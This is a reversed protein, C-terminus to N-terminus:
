ILDCAEAPMWHAPKGDWKINCGIPNTIPVTINVQDSGTEGDNDTVTLKFSFKTTMTVQPIAFSAIMSNSNSISISPGSIQTWLYSVIAGNPDYSKTGDLSITEGISANQDNGAHAVPSTSTKSTYIIKAIVPALARLM